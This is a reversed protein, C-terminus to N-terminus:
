NKVKKTQQQQSWKADLEAEVDQAADRKKRNEELQAEYREVEKKAKEIFGRAKEMQREQTEVIMHHKEKKRMDRLISQKTYFLKKALHRNTDFRETPIIRCSEANLYMIFSAMLSPSWQKALNDFVNWHRFDKDCDYTRKEMVNDFFWEKDLTEVLYRAVRQRWLRNVRFLHRLRYVRGDAVAGLLLRQVDLPFGEM